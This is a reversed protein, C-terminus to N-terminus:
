GLEDLYLSIGLLAMIFPDGNEWCPKLLPLGHCGKSFKLVFLRGFKNLSTVTWSYILQNKWVKIVYPMDLRGRFDEKVCIRGWSSKVMPFFEVFFIKQPLGDSNWINRWV